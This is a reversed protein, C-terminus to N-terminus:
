GEWRTVVYDGEVTDVLDGIASESGARVRSVDLRNDGFHAVRADNADFFTIGNAVFQAFKLPKDTSKQGIAIGIVATGDDKNGDLIGIDIFGDTGVSVLNETTEIAKELNGLGLETAEFAVKQIEFDAKLGNVDTSFTSTTSEVYTNLNDFDGQAVYLEQLKEQVPEYNIYAEAIDSQKIIYDKIETFSPGTSSPFSQSVNVVTSAGANGGAGEGGELNDFAWQLQERLQLLYSKLGMLVEHDSGTLNPQRLDLKM